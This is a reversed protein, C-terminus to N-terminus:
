AGAADPAPLSWMVERGVRHTYAELRTRGLSGLARATQRIAHERDEESQGAVPQVLASALTFTTVAREPGFAGLDKLAAGIQRAAFAREDGLLRRHEAATTPFFALSQGVPRGEFTFPHAPEPADKHKEVHVEVAKTERHAKVRIYTDVGARFASSGRAGADEDKGTHHVLVVVCQFAEALSEAWRITLGVDRASNEDLGLMAKAATDVVIMAVRRDGAAAAIADGCEQVEDPSAVTPAPGLYFDPLAAVARAEKWARRRKTGVDHRGEAALYFVPGRRVPEHGWCPVGAAVSLALDLALFSKYSQTPGVLLVTGVGPLVEPVLWEPDPANDLDDETSFQFRPRKDAVARAPAAPLTSADWVEGAKPVAYVGEGNEMYKAANQVKVALEDVDWPPICAPNWIEAMLEFATAAPCGLELCEIATRFTKADGGHGEVAVSGGRVLNRLHDRVRTEARAFDVGAEPAQLKRDPRRAANAVWGPLDAIAHDAEVQYAGDHTRSPPILVYSTEGRTDIHPAVIHQTGTLKGAFYLHLGGRPTRVAYTEPAQGHQAQLVGWEGLGDVGDLDVVAWGVQDPVFAINYDPNESWWKNIVAPDTSADYFGEPTAPVKTNPRCPFVAIGDAACQLATEHLTPM